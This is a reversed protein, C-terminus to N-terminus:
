PGCDANMLRALQALGRLEVLLYQAVVGRIGFRQMKQSHKVVLLAVVRTGHLQDGAGHRQPGVGRDVMGVQSLWIARHPLELPSHATAPCGQAEAGIIRFREAVKPQGKLPQAPEVFGDLL